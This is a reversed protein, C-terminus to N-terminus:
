RTKDKLKEFTRLGGLGLMGLLVTFLPETELVPFDVEPYITRIIPFIVFHYFFALSCGWGVSPRWGAVFLSRHQAEVENIKTQLEILEKPDLEKGKIAERIEWALGGIASKNNNRGGLLSLLAKIM